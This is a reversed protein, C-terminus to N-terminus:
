LNLYFINIYTDIDDAEKNRIKITAEEFISRSMRNRKKLNARRARAPNKKRRVRARRKLLKRKRKRM